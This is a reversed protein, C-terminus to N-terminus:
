DNYTKKYKSNLTLSRCAFEDQKNTPKDVYYLANPYEGCFFHHHMFRIRSGNMLELYYYPLSDARILEENDLQQYFFNYERLANYRSSCIAIIYHDEISKLDKIIEDRM